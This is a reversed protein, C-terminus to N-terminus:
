QRIIRRLQNAEEWSREVGGQAIDKVYNIKVEELLDVFLSKLAQLNHQKKVETELAISFNQILHTSKEIVEPDELLNTLTTYTSQSIDNALKSSVQRPLTDMGPLHQIQQYMQTKKIANEISYHLLSEIETQVKPIVQYITMRLLRNAIEQVENTNNINIYPQYRGTRLLWEAADGREISDQMQDILRVGVIETMEEAFNTVFDYKIQKRIPELNLLQAQYLQITVPIVRLWRWFPLLLFLDYWRRLLAELWNLDPRQRSIIFTRILIELGFFAIFPLDILWFREIFKGRTNIGRYYNTEILTQLNTTFFDLEREWGARNLYAQSWFTDFAQHASNIHVRDRVQNKINELHGTKQAIAFPNDEILENSLQRMQALLNEVEPSQIDTQQIQHKLQQFQALYRTTERHPEIGKIPDYQQVIQPAKEFYFDRWPIYSLDFLVLFFNLLVVLAVLRELWLFRRVPRFAIQTKQLSSM